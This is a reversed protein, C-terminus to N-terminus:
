PGSYGSGFPAQVLCELPSLRVDLALVLVLQKLICAPDDIFNEFAVLDLFIRVKPEEDNSIEVEEVVLAAGTIPAFVDAKRKAVVITGLEAECESLFNVSQDFAEVVTDFSADLCACCSMSEMLFSSSVVRGRGDDGQLRGLGGDLDDVDLVVILKEPDDPTGGLADARVWPAVAPENFHARCAVCGTTKFMRGVRPSDFPREVQTAGAPLVALVRVNARARPLQLTTILETRRAVLIRPIIVIAVDQTVGPLKMPPTVALILATTHQSPPIRFTSHLSM